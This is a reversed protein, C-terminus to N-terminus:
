YEECFVGMARSTDPTMQSYLSQQINQKLEQLATHLIKDCHVANYDNLNHYSITPEICLKIVPKLSREKCKYVDTVMQYVDNKDM